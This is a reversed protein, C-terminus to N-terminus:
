EGKGREADMCLAKIGSSRFTITVKGDRGDYGVREILLKVIRVQERPALSDWIPDFSSLARVMDEESVVERQLVIIEDQIATMRQEVTCIRDQLDALHDATSRVNPMPGSPDDLLRRLKAQLLRLDKEHGRRESELQSVREESQERVKSTTAAIISENKGLNRIHEVVANEIEQANLSKTPCCAWGHQQANLCVYYRYRKGNKATFTHMMGTGCPACYLLGRLLAGYKNRMEAGGTRGNRRLTEQVEHWLADDIIREHEGDYIVGKHDVKGTYVVNTLLRFLGNKNFPRGGRERDKKTIWQKTRWGRRELEQVVPILAKYDLYIRYIARVREAEEENVLLRGGKPHLDYGLIPHGGVWKGKRRAASMKDRTREAIIEREFQAFSLLINLTLRGMSSTTNFQQTVSVFSVGQRDLLEMIRAFDLLSRSLRDVKYVVVCDVNGAEIDALLRKLAPRDMNGGTFGGDDYRDPLCLWGEHQQSAIYAKASERQADLSNFEQDLGEETSKRTYIACRITGNGDSASHGPASAQNRTRNM